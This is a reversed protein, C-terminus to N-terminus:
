DLNSLASAIVYIELYGILDTRRLYDVINLCAFFIAAKNVHLYKNDCHMLNRWRIMSRGLNIHNGNECGM